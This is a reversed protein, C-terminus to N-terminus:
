HWSQTSKLSMMMCQCQKVKFVHRVGGSISRYGDGSDQRTEHLCHGESDSESGDRCDEVLLLTHRCPDLHYPCFSKEREAIHVAKQVANVCFSCM